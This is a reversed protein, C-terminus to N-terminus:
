NSATDTKTEEPPTTADTTETPTATGSTAATDTEPMVTEGANEAQAPAVTESATNVLEASAAPETTEATAEATAETAPEAVEAVTEAAQATEIVTPHHDGAPRLWASVAIGGIITLLLALGVLTTAIEKKPNNEVDHHAM